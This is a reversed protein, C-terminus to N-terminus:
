RAKLSSLLHGVTQYLIQKIKTVFPRLNTKIPPNFGFERMIAIEEERTTKAPELNVIHKPLGNVPDWRSYNIGKREPSSFTHNEFESM